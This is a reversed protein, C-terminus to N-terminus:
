LNAHSIAAIQRQVWGKIALLITRLNMNGGNGNIRFNYISSGERSSVM